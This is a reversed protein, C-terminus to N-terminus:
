SSMAQRALLSRSDHRKSQESSVAGRGAHPEEAKFACPPKGPHSSTCTPSQMLTTVQVNPIVLSLGLGNIAWFFIAEHLSSSISFGVTMVGWILCGVTIVWIRNGYHGATRLKAERAERSAFTVNKAGDTSM